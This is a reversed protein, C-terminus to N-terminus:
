NSKGHLQKRINLLENHKLILLKELNFREAQEIRGQLRYIEVNDKERGLRTKLIEYHPVFEQDQLIKWYNSQNLAELAQIIALLETERQRLSSSVDIDEELELSVNDMAIKSNNM